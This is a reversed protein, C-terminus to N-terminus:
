PVRVVLHKSFIDEEGDTASDDCSDVLNLMEECVPFLM